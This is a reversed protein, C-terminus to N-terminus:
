PWVWHAEALTPSPGRPDEGRVEVLTLSAGGPGGRPSAPRGPRGPVFLQRANLM